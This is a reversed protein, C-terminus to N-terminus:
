VNEWGALIFWRPGSVKFLYADWKPGSERAAIRGSYTITGKGGQNFSVPQFIIGASNCGLRFFLLGLGSSFFHEHVNHNAFCWSLFRHSLNSIKVEKRQVSFASGPCFAKLIAQDTRSSVCHYALPQTISKKEWQPMFSAKTQGYFFCQWKLFVTHTQLFACQIEAQPRESGTHTRCQAFQHWPFYVTSSSLFPHIDSM